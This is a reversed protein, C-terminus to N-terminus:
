PTDLTLSVIRSRRGRTDFSAIRFLAGPALAVPAAYRRSAAVPESGDVTYHLALGPLAVNAHAAGDQLAVGPPPLRYGYPTPARDLRPLERRALRNAFENWDAEIAAGRVRADPIRQWGPDPSWAREALAILRPLALYDIRAASRANEGWLQGQLGAIRGQGLKDLPQMAARLGPDLPRGMPDGVHDAEASAFADLPCFAFAHRTEVFGAWYYGPEEPHKAYALDFYLNAANSLVVCYGANALRYACDEQGSGWANNWVYAHFDSGAFRPNPRMGEGEVHLLATEEWGAFEVGHRALIARCRAVFDGHLQAAGTWGEMAMRARCAPSGLWAGAPVEDGGTHIVRLPAEAARYLACVEGVVTDIFRDVSPLAICIVNDHWLQVSEYDSRDDPDSLLYARAGEPDGAALLRDHRARMAVVAARAHGPMNFEPIVDIHRAKAHRLITVFDEASYYGTGASTDAAAGSGFSPPLCDPGVGRRSGIGTLEPLAAIELRWGEDDTLHFHFRNLKYAAMCDLLRLVTPVPAFHRAVDLMMGRYAFRPEDLVLGLPLSGDAELLQALSQLGNFVGHASQGRVRVRRATIELEYAEQCAGELAVQGLQLEVGTEGPPGDPLAALMASLLAAENALQTAHVVPAGPALRCRGAGFRTFRPQPTIRGIEAEPLERLGANRLHRRAADETPLRDFGARRRQEERVFPAIEPDGLDVPEGDQPVLYFGLPADTVSIAWHLSDYEIRYRQQPLWPEGGSMSLRFLDGNVHEIAFGPSVSGALAKRCTNFYLTWGPAITRASVNALELRSRFRDDRVTNTLCEWSIAVPAAAPAVDMSSPPTSM